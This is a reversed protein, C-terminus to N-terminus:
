NPNYIEFEKIIKIADESCPIIESVREDTIWILPITVCVKTYNSPKVWYIAVWSLWIGEKATWGWLRRSDSLVYYWKQAKELKWFHVWSDYWRLIVYKWIFEQWLVQEQDKEVEIWTTEKNELLM